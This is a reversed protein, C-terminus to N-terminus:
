ARSCKKPLWSVNNVVERKATELTDWYCVRGGLFAWGEAVENKYHKEERYGYTGSSRRFIIVRRKRAEDYLSEVAHYKM